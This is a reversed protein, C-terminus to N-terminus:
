RELTIEYVVENADLYGSALSLLYQKSMYENHLWNTQENRKTTLYTFNQEKLQTKIALYSKKSCTQYTICRKGFFRPYLIIYQTQAGFGKTYAISEYNETNKSESYEFGKNMAFTEFKDANLNLINKMENLSIQAFTVNSVILFSFVFIKMTTKM